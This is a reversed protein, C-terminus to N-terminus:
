WFIGIIALAGLIIGGIQGVIAPSLQVGKKVEVIPREHRLQQVEAQLQHVSGHLEKVLEKLETIEKEVPQSKELNMYQLFEVIIM